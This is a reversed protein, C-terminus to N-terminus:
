RSKGEQLFIRDMRDWHFDNLLAHLRREMRQLNLYHRVRTKRDIGSVRPQHPDIEWPHFYFVCAEADRGNVRRIAWRSVAYPLLRFYGGGGCPFKHDFIEVTSVPVELLGRAGGPRFAFRPAEPMGYLDHHIPYISSSYAYGARQLIELAWLNGAGISYSAARYGRVAVGGLDELLAKTHSVDRYFEAPTQRTVRIHSYGHSALEHGAEVIRRVLLPYREAVWGLVFFTAKVGHQRFLELVNDTNSEVRHPLCNWDARSIYREFASVQFYDEVDVTMANPHRPM